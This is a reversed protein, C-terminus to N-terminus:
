IRWLKKAAVREGDSWRWDDLDPIMLSAIETIDDSYSLLRMMNNAAQRVVAMHADVNEVPMVVVKSATKNAHVYDVIPHCNEATAYISLQRCTATPVKNPLRSVTKIDRVVGDYLLDLYGIIPIPLEDLELKIKKQTALPKGLSRFHPIAPALYRSLNDRESEARVAMVPIKDEIASKYEEDFSNEAWKIIQAESVDPEEIAICLAKDVATGRWMAPIGFRDRFGSVHLIWRQPNTIYENISSASLHGVNHNEFPNKNMPTM